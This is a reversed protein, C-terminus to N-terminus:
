RAVAEEPILLVGAAEIRVNAFLLALAKGVEDMKGARVILTIPESARHPPHQAGSVWNSAELDVYSTVPTLMRDWLAAPVVVIHGSPFRKPESNIYATFRSAVPSDVYSDVYARVPPFEYDSM